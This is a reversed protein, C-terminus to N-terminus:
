FICSTPINGVFIAKMFFAWITIPWFILMLFAKHDEIYSEKLICENYAYIRLQRIDKEHQKICHFDLTEFQMNNLVIIKQLSIDKCVEKSINLPPLYKGNECICRLLRLNEQNDYGRCNVFICM